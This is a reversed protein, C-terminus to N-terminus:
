AASPHRTAIRSSPTSTVTASVLNNAADRLRFTATTISTADMAQGFTAKVATTISVGTAGALPSVSTVTPPPVTTFSWSYNAALPVGVSSRVGGSGGTVTATYTTSPALAASPQLTATNSSSTYTVTASILSNSATRLVFTSSTISTPDMAQDFTAKVAATIPVGTAGSLPSVATVTPPSATTFSWTYNAALSVG